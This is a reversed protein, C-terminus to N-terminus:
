YGSPKRKYSNADILDENEEAWLIDEETAEEEASEEDAYTELKVFVM